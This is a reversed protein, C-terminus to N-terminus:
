CPMHSSTWCQISLRRVTGKLARVKWAQSSQATGHHLDTRGYISSPPPLSPRAPLLTIWHFSVSLATRLYLGTSTSLFQSFMMTARAGGPKSHWSASVSFDMASGGKLSIPRVSLDGKVVDNPKVVMWSFIRMNVLLVVPHIGINNPHTMPLSLCSGSLAKQWLM